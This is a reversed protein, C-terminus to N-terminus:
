VQASLDSTEQQDQSFYKPRVKGGVKREVVCSTRLLRSRHGNHRPSNCQAVASRQCNQKQLNVAIPAIQHTDAMKADLHTALRCMTTHFDSDYLPSVDGIKTDRSVVQEFIKKAINFLQKRRTRGLLETLLDITSNSYFSSRLMGSSAAAFFSGVDCVVLAVEAVSQLM